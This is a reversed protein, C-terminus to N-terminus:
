QKRIRTDCVYSLPYPSLSVREVVKKVERRLIVGVEQMDERLSQACTPCDNTKLVFAETTIAEASPHHALILASRCLYKWSYGTVMDQTDTRRELLGDDDDDDESNYNHM